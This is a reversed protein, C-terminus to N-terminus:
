KENINKNKKDDIIEQMNKDNTTGPLEGMLNGEWGQAPTSIREGNSGTGESYHDDAGMLHGAEHAMEGSAVGKSNTNWEGSNGGSVFSAGQSAAHSTPGTTLTINNAKKDKPGADTVSVDVKTQVGNLNYSSSWRSAVDSKIASINAETAGPGSFKVPVNISLSGDKKHTIVAYKGTTDFKNVPDNGVYAYLNMDDKYGIPDMQLFRGGTPDYMRAKYYFLGLEKLWVQGTYGFLGTNNPGTNGFADYSNQSLTAGNSDSVAVISGQHNGHLYRANASNVTSGLYQVWPE